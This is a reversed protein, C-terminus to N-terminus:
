LTVVVAPDTILALPLLPGPPETFTRAEFICTWPTTEAFPVAPPVTRRTAGSSWPTM